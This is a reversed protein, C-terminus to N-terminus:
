DGAKRTLSKAAASQSFGHVTIEIQRIPRGSGDAYPPLRIPASATIANKVASDFAADGSAKTIDLRKITGNGNYDLLLTTVESRPVHITGLHNVIDSRLTWVLMDAIAQDSHSSGPTGAPKISVADIPQSAFLPLTSLALALIVLAPSLWRVLPRSRTVLGNWAYWNLAADAVAFLVMSALVVVPAAFMWKPPVLPLSAATAALLLTNSTRQRIEQVWAPFSLPSTLLAALTVFVLNNRNKRSLDIVFRRARPYAILAASMWSACHAAIILSSADPNFFGLTLACTYFTVALDLRPRAPVPVAIAAAALLGLIIQAFLNFHTDLDANEAGPILAIFSAVVCLGAALHLSFRRRPLFRTKQWASAFMVQILFALGAAPWLVALSSLLGGLSQDPEPISAAVTVMLIAIAAVIARLTLAYKLWYGLREITRRNFGLSQRQTVNLQRFQEGSRAGLLPSFIRLWWRPRDNVLNSFALLDKYEAKIETPLNAVGGLQFLKKELSAALQPGLLTANRYDKTWDFYRVISRTLEASLHQRVILQAFAIKAKSHEALPLEDLRSVLKPWERLLANSGFPAKLCELAEALITAASSGAPTEPPTTPARVRDNGDPLISLRARDGTRQQSGQHDRRIVLRPEASPALDDSNEADVLTLRSSPAPRLPPESGPAEGTIFVVEIDSSSREPADGGAQGAQAEFSTEPPTQPAANPPTVASAAARRAYAQAADYAERLAQYASADDEPRTVKLRAAYARKITALDSTPEIGLRQWITVV